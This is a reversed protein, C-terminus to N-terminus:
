NNSLMAEQVEDALLTSTPVPNDLVPNIPGRLPGRPALEFRKGCDDNVMVPHRSGVWRDTTLGPAALSAASRGAGEPARRSGACAKKLGGARARPHTEVM